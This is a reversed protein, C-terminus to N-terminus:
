KLTCVLVYRANNYEYSCTSLTVLPSEGDWSVDSRFTSSELLKRVNEATDATNGATNYIEANSPVVAGAITEAQYVRDPTLIWILPHESYYDQTKYGSLSAFMSGNKMYHGFIVTNGCEFAPVSRCDAFISGAYLYSGDPAAHLYTDNSDTQMIPYNIATGESYIWGILDPYEKKLAVFDVSIPASANNEVTPQPSDTRESPREAAATPIVFRDSIESYMSDARTYESLGFCLKWICFCFTAAALGLLIRYITKKSM